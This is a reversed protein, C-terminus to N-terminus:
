KVEADIPGGIIGTEDWEVDDTSLFVVKVRPNRKKFKDSLYGEVENVEIYFKNEDRRKIRYFTLNGPLYISDSDSLGALHRKLEGVTMAEDTM